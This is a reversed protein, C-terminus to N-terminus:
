RGRASIEAMRKATEPDVGDGVYKAEYSEVLKQHDQEAAQTNSEGLGRIVGHGAIKSLYEAEAKVAEEIAKEMAKEDLEGDKVVPNRSLSETLRARTLDPIEQEALKGSVFTRAKGLLVVERLRANETELESKAKTAAALAAEPERLAKEDAMNAEEEDKRPPRNRAAEFLELIQGGAGPVTVFDISRAGTIEEILKGKQGAAEGEKARGWANISLGIHPALEDVAAQFGEFVQARAYLGPGYPGNPDWAADETLEATLDRLSREPREEEESRTPHDWFMQTGARFMKPGDRELLGPSYYGASGWGPQIIKIPITGDQGVAKEVLAIVDGLIEEGAAEDIPTYTSSARVKTPSGLLVSGDPEEAYSRQYTGAAEEDEYVFTRDDVSVDRIWYRYRNSGTPPAEDNLAQKLVGKLDEAWLGAERGRKEIEKRSAREKVLASKLGHIHDEVLIQVDPDQGAFWQSFAEKEEGTAAEFTYDTVDNAKLWAKAEDASYLDVPFRYSQATMETEGKLHGSILRVGGKGGESKPLTKSRFTGPEFDGPDRVRAAHENPYPM